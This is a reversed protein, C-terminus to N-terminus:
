RAAVETRQVHSIMTDRRDPDRAMAQVRGRSDTARSMLVHRGPAAPVPWELTWLRWAHRIPKGELTATVWTKGGDTSVEVKAIDAEGTWAAGFVRYPKGAAVTEGLAPRAIQSKVELETVPTLTPLGDRRQWYSYSMTQFYGQFPRPSVVLRRLWKVSAMGYWGPVVLRVPFGHNPTLEKGNMKYALLVNSERAKVVSLSRAYCITGPTPPLPSSFKGEDAGEVIVEMAEATVGAKELVDALPVGTWTANGVAGQEWRVGVQPPDLFVRGNGSCELMATVTQSPLGVLQNYNLSVTQRVAGEVSLQWREATLEPVDFHNRVYFQDTPTIFSDLAAFNSELNDPRAQRRILGPPGSGVRTQGEPAAWVQRAALSWAGLATGALFARRGLQNFSEQHQADM